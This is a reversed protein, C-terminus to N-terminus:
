NKFSDCVYRSVTNLTYNRQLKYHPYKSVKQVIPEHMKWYKLICFRSCLINVWIIFKQLKNWWDPTSQRKKGEIWENAMEIPRQANTHHFTCIDWKVSSLFYILKCNCADSQKMENGRYSTRIAFASCFHFFFRLAAYLVIVTAERDICDNYLTSASLYDVNLWKRHVACKKTNFSTKGTNM